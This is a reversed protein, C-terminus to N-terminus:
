QKKYSIREAYSAIPYENFLAVVPGHKLFCSQKQNLTNLIKLLTFKGHLIKIYAIGFEYLAKLKM